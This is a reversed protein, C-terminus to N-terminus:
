SPTPSAWRCQAHHAQRGRWLRSQVPEECGPQAPSQRQGQLLVACFFAVRV